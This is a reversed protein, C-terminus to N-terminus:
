TLTWVALKLAPSIRPWNLGHPGLDGGHRSVPVAAHVRERDGNWPPRAVWAGRTAFGRFHERHQGIHERAPVAPGRSSVYPHRMRIVRM